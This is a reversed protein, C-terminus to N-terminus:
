LAYRSIESAPCNQLPKRLKVSEGKIALGVAVLESGVAKTLSGCKLLTKFGYGKLVSKKRGPQVKGEDGSNCHVVGLVM